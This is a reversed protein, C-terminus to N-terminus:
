AAAAAAEAAIPGSRGVGGYGLSRVPLLCVPLARQQDVQVARACRAAGKFLHQLCNCLFRGLANKCATPEKTDPVGENSYCRAARRVQTGWAQDHLFALRGFCETSLTDIPELRTLGCGILAPVKRLGGAARLHLCQDDFQKRVNALYPWNIDVADVAPAISRESQRLQQRLQRGSHDGERAVVWRCQPPLGIRFTM